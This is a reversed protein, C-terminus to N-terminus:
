QTVATVFDRAAALEADTALNRALVGNVWKPGHGGISRAFGELEGVEVVFIGMARLATLLIKLDQTPQGPPVFPTGIEKALRWPSARRLISRIADSADEPFVGNSYKALIASVDRTVDAVDLTPKKGDVSANVSAWQPRAAAWVGGHAQVLTDLLPEEKLVDFDLISRVPVAVQSLARVVLPIRDKGGSHVFMQDPQRIGAAKSTADAVAGYFRCDADSECVMVREHFLGDLINSYRLLPDNWLTAIQTNDLMRAVNTAGERRLRIVKVGTSTADLIGRLVDGSHTAVFLQRDRRKDEVLMRGLLRAQPPHLFAEPEDILLVSEQGVSTYLLVGAFSRMGDGQNQLPLLAEVAQIYPFSLRDQGQAPVPRDGCHLPVQSGANRHVVLDTGFAKRFQDSLKRELREDIQLYHIPHSPPERVLPIAGAPDAALLRADATLMHCFFRALGHLGTSKSTWESAAGSKHVGAGWAHYTPDSPNSDQRRTTADLWQLLDDPTGASDLTITTVVPSKSAPDVIKDRIARLSASKGANNPGVVVVIDDPALPLMTGDSFTVSSLWLRPDTM